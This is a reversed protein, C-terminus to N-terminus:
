SRYERHQCRRHSTDAWARDVASVPLMVGCVREVLGVSLYILVGFAAIRPLWRASMVRMASEGGFVLDYLILGTAFIVGAQFGGGPGFDGHFQM